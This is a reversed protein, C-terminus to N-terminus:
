GRTEDERIRSMMRSVMEYADSATLVNEPIGFRRTLQLFARHTARINRARQADFRITEGYTIPVREGLGLPPKLRASSALPALVIQYFTNLSCITNLRDVTFQRVELFFLMENQQSRLYEIQRVMASRRMDLRRRVEWDLGRSLIELIEDM